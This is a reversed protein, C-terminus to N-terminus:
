SQEPRYRDPPIRTRQPYRPQSSVAPHPAQVSNDLTGDPQSPAVLTAGQTAEESPLDVEPLESVPLDTESLAPGRRARMHDQHRRFMRGDQGRILFSVSSTHKVIWGPLWTEGRGFNRLYVEEGEQFRYPHTVVDHNLKQQLQKDEVREATNPKVLDLKSRPRRGLLLEAPSIGTTGQPTLRYAFLVKALRTNLTGQTVKKLGRKVIQVAREALGNSAPHYPASTLHRVGNAKLFAEFEDSTFCTGNDTVVTEPVGFQAFVQRLCEMTASSTASTVCFAEIWKSHADILVLFMRGLFPGAYDLHLRAWPRTPWKWPQMPAVPPSSHNVQCEQCTRVCEEIQKDIGPWWVYMRALSKMRTTGPHGEHLEQLVMERGQQPVVVRSGWLICGEHVSLEERKASFPMLNPDGQDPWGQQVYQLVPALSPDRQTWSRIHDATVPSDALHDMLLVLEPPTPVEAPVTPLPLRSLADANSHAETKRFVLAYEYAALLLSWRRIRASAQPSTSRHENFLALLPKHDTVLKFSHGFLYSHFRKVGFVCALGEKEIQSYNKEAPSLTRSAYGIPRETGDPMQHALVAGVGYASADCALILPLSADFHVLLKSSTLLEKSKCFAQEEKATWHWRAEKRLLRYLPALVTSVDPLFKCYYTLLGLYAKLEQVSKPSPAEVVAQVKDPLPHLGDEDIQHGLYSVSPVMFECKSERARLGAKELREFVMELRQLHEEETAASVLIDDLYAIVGPIGQLLSEMVRQFIGPASSIGYPLRTYRFLGKQTNIVVLKRLEEELPLQQYAQSLDVKSFLRGGALTAFLDEVKPIPYKDLKSVPNVTQKFDGCIRISSKDSKLVVVIPAAWESFQVPELTGEKVLRSLEADVKDRLAYPVTRAKCFRPTAEPDTVIKVKHGQLTGLGEQFLARHRQLVSQLSKPRLCYIEQWDLRIQELWNRGFLSPGEGKVVVLPVKAVQKKYSITVEAKGVVPIAEGSYSCLRVTSPDVSRDAWLEKFTVESMLSVAAGTDVEMTVSQGDVEVMVNYPSGKNAPGLRFLSYEETEEQEQVPQVPRPPGPKKATGKAKGYCAAQVHGSKGCHYCQADKFKCKSALHGAKGCRFCTHDSKGKFQPASRAHKGKVQPTVKNVERSSSQTGGQLEKVNQAATEMGQALKLAKDFSLPVEALLRRQIASDNIGCVVRDRLMAELSAGFNCFEALSRLEAVFTAVSEGPKRFRSHFKYRQVTESPIPKYHETLLQVLDEYTKEGPKAPSVLNRLLKFVTPGVVTLFISRKKGEEEIGNAEFFHGLREVYQPWDEKAEDFEGVKGFVAAMGRLLRPGSPDRQVRLVSPERQVRLVSPERQVGLVSSRQARPGKREAPAPSVSVVLVWCCVIGLLWDRMGGEDGFQRSRVTPDACAM